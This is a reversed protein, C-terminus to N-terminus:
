YMSLLTVLPKYMHHTQTQNHQISTIIYCSDCIADPASPISKSRNNGREPQTLRSLILLPLETPTRLRVSRVLTPTPVNSAANNDPFMAVPRRKWRSVTKGPFKNALKGRCRAATRVPCKAVSRRRRNAHCRKAHKGLWRRVSNGPFKAVSKGRWKTASKDPFKNASRRPFRNASRVICQTASRDLFTTATREPSKTAAKCKKSRPFTVASKGPFMNVNKGQCKDPSRNANSSKWKARFKNANKVLYKVPFKAVSRSRWKNPFTTASKVPSKVPFM